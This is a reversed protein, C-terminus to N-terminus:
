LSGGAGVLLQILQERVDLRDRLLSSEVVLRAPANGFEDESSPNAGHALLAKVMGVAGHQAAWHLTNSEVQGDRGSQRCAAHGRTSRIGM